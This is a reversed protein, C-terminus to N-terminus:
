LTPKHIALFVKGFGGEGIPKIIEYESVQSTTDFDEGSFFSSSYRFVKLLLYPQETKLINWIMKSFKLEMGM